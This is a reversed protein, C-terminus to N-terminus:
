EEPIKTVRRVYRHERKKDESRRKKSRRNKYSENPFADHGPCCCNVFKLIKLNKLERKM